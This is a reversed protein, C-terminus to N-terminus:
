GKGNIFKDYKYLFTVMQRRLCKGQPKFTGDNYGAVIKQESAWIVPKYFYDKEKVDKFKCTKAKPTPKQAMRWLFTVTQARTCVGQPDFKTKSVGTTIGKEVAWIVPKFFYDKAKVDSFKCTTSKTKPEGQLRYLFTVMQARTCDNAPKFKTQKDYGKVVGKATLYNTPAYWFDKTNTVDKYLVTVECSASKGAATATITVAGAQKTTIKGSADVTAIKSDSSKWTIKSTAGKLTAKLSDTKGCVINVAKKNLTLTVNNAPKATPKATGTPKATPKAAGTPKAASTPAPTPATIKFQKVISGTFNGKGTITLKATGPAKNESYTIVYDKDKVLTLVNGDVTAKVTINQVVSSGSMVKDEIGEVAAGTIAAPNIKFALTKEGTYNNIGTVKVQAEGANINASWTLKYDTDKVLPTGEYSVAPDPRIEKGNFSQDAIADIVADSINVLPEFTEGFLYTIDIQGTTVTTLVNDKSGNVYVECTDSMSYGYVSSIGLRYSYEAKGRTIPDSDQFSYWSGEPTEKYAYANEPYGDIYGAELKEEGCYYKIDLEDESLSVPGGVVPKAITLEIKSIPSVPKYEYIIYDSEGEFIQYGATKVSDVYACIKVKYTGYEVSYNAFMNRLNGNYYYQPDFQGINVDSMNYIWYLFTCDDGEDDKLSATLTDGDLKYDTLPKEKFRGATDGSEAVDSIDYGTASAFVEFKYNSDKYFMWKSFDYYNETININGGFNNYTGDKEDDRWLSVTYKQANPVENWRAVGGDWVLGTPKGIKGHSEEMPEFSISNEGAYIETTSGIYGRLIVDSCHSIVEYNNFVCDPNKITIKVNKLYYFAYSDLFSVSAPLVVNSLYKNNIAYNDVGKVGDPVYYSGSRKEYPYYSVYLDGDSIKYLVGDISKYYESGEAVYYAKYDGQVFDNGHGIDQLSAPLYRVEDECDFNSHSGLSKVGEEIVVHKITGGDISYNGLELGENRLTLSDLTIKSFCKDDIRTVGEPIVFDLVGPKEFYFRMRAGGESFLNGDKVLYTDNAPDVTFGTGYLRCDEFARWSISELSAPISVSELTNNYFVFEGLSTIGEEIVVHKIDKNKVFPSLESGSLGFNGVDGKKGGHGDDETPTLTLVGTTKNFSYKVNSSLMGTLEMKRVFYASYSENGEVKVTLVPDTSVDENTSSKNWRVFEFESSSKAYLTINSGYTFKESTSSSFTSNDFSVLGDTEGYNEDLARIEIRPKDVTIYENIVLSKRDSSIDKYWVKYFENHSLNLEDALVYGDKHSEIINFPIQLRYDGTDFYSNNNVDTYENSATKKQWRRTGGEFIGGDIKTGDELTVNNITCFPIQQRVQMGAVPNPFEYDINFSKIVKPTGSSIATKSFYGIIVDGTNEFISMKIGNVYLECNDAFSVDTVGDVLYLDVMFRSEGPVFYMNYVGDEAYSFYDDTGDFYCWGYKETEFGLIDKPASGNATFVDTIYIYPQEIYAHEYIKDPLTSDTELYVKTIKNTAAFVNSNLFALFTMIVAIVAAVSAWVSRRGSCFSSHISM